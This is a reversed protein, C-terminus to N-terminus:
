TKQTTSSTTAGGTRKTPQIRMHFLNPATQSTRVIFAAPFLLISVGKHEWTSRMNKTANKQAANQLKWERGLGATRTYSRLRHDYQPFALFHLTADSFPKKEKMNTTSDTKRAAEQRDDHREQGPRVVTPTIKPWSRPGFDGDKQIPSRQSRCFTLM